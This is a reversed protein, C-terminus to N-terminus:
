ETPCHSVIMLCFHPFELLRNPDYSDGVYFHLIAGPPDRTDIPMYRRVTGVVRGSVEPEENDAVDSNNSRKSRM